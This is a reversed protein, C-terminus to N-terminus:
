PIGFLESKMYSCGHEDLYKVFQAMNMVGNENLSGGTQANFLQETFGEFHHLQTRNGEFQQVESKVITIKQWRMAKISQWFQQVDERDGEVCIIGPKGPRSFGSLLLQRAEKLIKQRKASSKIHHSYIWLREFDRTSTVPEDVLEEVSSDAKEQLGVIQDQVWILLQYVYPEETQQESIYQDLQSKFLQENAKSLLPSNVSVIPCQLLPYLHPLEIGVAVHKNGPMTLRVSYDLHASPLSSLTSTDSQLFMNFDVIVGADLLQLEGAACYISSLLELEELQQRLCVRYSHLEAM